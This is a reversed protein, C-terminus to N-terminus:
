NKKISNIVIERSEVIRNLLGALVHGNRLDVFPAYYDPCSSCCSCSVEPRQRARSQRGQGRRVREVGPTLRNEFPGRIQCGQM